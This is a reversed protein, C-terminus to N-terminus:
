APRCDGEPPWEGDIVIARWCAAEAQARAHLVALAVCMAALAVCCLTLIPAIM